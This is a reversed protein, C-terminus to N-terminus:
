LNWHDVDQFGNPPLELKKQFALSLGDTVTCIVSPFGTQKECFCETQLQSLM